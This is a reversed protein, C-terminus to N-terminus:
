CCNIGKTIFQFLTKERLIYIVYRQKYKTVDNNIVKKSTKNKGTSHVLLVLFNWISLTAQVKIPLITKEM